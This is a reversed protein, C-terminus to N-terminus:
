KRLRIVASRVGPMEGGSGYDPEISLLVDVAFQPGRQGLQGGCACRDVGCLARWVRLGTRHSVKGDPALRLTATKRHFENTLTIMM